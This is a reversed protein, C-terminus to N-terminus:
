RNIIDNLTKEAIGYIKHSIAVNRLRFKYVYQYLKVHHVLLKIKTQLEGAGHSLSIRRGM